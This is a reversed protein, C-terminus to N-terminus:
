LDGCAVTEYSEGPPCTGEVVLTRPRGARDVLVELRPDGADAIVPSAWTLYPVPDFAPPSSFTVALGLSGFTPSLWTIRTKALAM